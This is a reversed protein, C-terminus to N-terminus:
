RASPSAVGITGASSIRQSTAKVLGVKERRIFWDDRVLMAALPDHVNLIGLRGGGLGSISLLPGITLLTKGETGIVTSSCGKQHGVM